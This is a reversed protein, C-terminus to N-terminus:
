RQAEYQAAMDEPSEFFGAFWPFAVDSANRPTLPMLWGEVFTSWRQQPAGYGYHNMALFELLRFAVKKSLPTRFHVSYDSPLTFRFVSAVVRAADELRVDFVGSIIPVMPLTEAARAMNLRVMESHHQDVDNVDPRATANVVAGVLPKPYKVEKLHYSSYTYELYLRHREHVPLKDDGPKLWPPIGSLIAMRATQQETEIYNRLLDVERLDPADSKQVEAMKDMVREFLSPKDTM